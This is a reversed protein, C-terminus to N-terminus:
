PGPERAVAAACPLWKVGERHRAGVEIERACQSLTGDDIGRVSPAELARNAVVSTTGFGSDTGVAGNPEDASNSARHNSSISESSAQMAEDATAPVVDPKRMDFDPGATLSAEFRM